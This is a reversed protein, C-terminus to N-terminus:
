DGGDGNTGRGTIYQKVTRTLDAVTAALAALQEGQKAFQEDHRKIRADTGEAIQLVTETLTNQSEILTGMLAQQQQLVDGFNEQRKIIFNMVEELEENTM